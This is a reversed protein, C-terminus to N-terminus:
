INLGLKSLLQEKKSRAVEIMQPTNNLILYGGRGKRYAEVHNLNVVFSKHVRMFNNEPLQQEM